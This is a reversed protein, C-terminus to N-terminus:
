KEDLSDNHQCCPHLSQKHYRSGSGFNQPPRMEEQFPLGFRSQEKAIPLTSLQSACPIKRKHRKM